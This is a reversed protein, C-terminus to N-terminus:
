GAPKSMTAYPIPRPFGHRAALTVFQVRRSTFLGDAAVFLADARDRVLTAFAAEIERSTSANLVQLKCDSPARRTRYREYHPSSLRPIPRISWCPLGFPRPCWSTCSGWGNPACSRPRFFQYRDCQRGAACPKRCSGAEVPDRRRRLRDPDDHDCSQGCARAANALTAIVDVRRRVLDAM